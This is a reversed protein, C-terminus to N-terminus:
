PVFRVSDDRFFQYREDIPVDQKVTSAGYRLLEGQYASEFVRAIADRAACMTETKYKKNRAARERAEKDRARWEVEEELRWVIEHHDDIACQMRQRAHARARAFAANLKRKASGRPANGVAPHLMAARERELEMERHVMDRVHLAALGRMRHLKGPLPMRRSRKPDPFTDVTPLVSLTSLTSTSRCLADLTPTASRQTNHNLNHNHNLLAPISSGGGDLPSSPNTATERFSM